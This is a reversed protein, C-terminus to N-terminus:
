RSTPWDYAVIGLDSLTQETAEVNRRVLPRDKRTAAPDEEVAIVRGYPWANSPMATLAEPLDAPRLELVRRRAATPRLFDAAPSNDPGMDPYLMSLTVTAKGVVLFPNKWSQRTHISEYLNKSPLPISDLQQREADLAAAAAKAQQIAHERAAAAKEVSAAARSPEHSCAVLASALLLTAAALTKRSSLHKM